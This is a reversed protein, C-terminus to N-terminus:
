VEGFISNICQEMDPFLPCSINIKENTFPHLFSIKHAHLAQRQIYESSVSYLTDSLIPHGVAKMHVRIQHTRGTILNLKVLTANESRKLVTYITKATEGMTNEPVAYRLISEKNPRHINYTIEGSNENIKGLCVAIYEKEVERKELLRSFKSAALQNKATIVVGSTDSDLRTMPRFVFNQGEYLASVRSALTDTHRLRAPHTPIGAEKAFAVYWEDEWLITVPLSTPTIPTCRADEIDLSLVDGSYLEHRVTKREGNVCIGNEKAKLRTILRTSFNLDALVQKITKKHYKEDIKIKM